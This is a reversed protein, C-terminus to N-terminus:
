GIPFGFYTDPYPERELTYHWWECKYSRFGCDEMIFRLHQRNAAEIRSVGRAGHHSILDMLDHGGGIAALEGSALHYLTMDVASGRTARSPPLMAREFM